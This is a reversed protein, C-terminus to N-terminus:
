LVDALPMVVAEKMLRRYIDNEELMVECLQFMIARNCNGVADPNPGSLFQRLHGLAESVKDLHLNIKETAVPTNDAM